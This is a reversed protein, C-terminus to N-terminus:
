KMGAKREKMYAVGESVFRAVAARNEAFDRETKSAMTAEFERILRM